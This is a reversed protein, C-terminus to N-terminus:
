RASSSSSGTGHGATRRRNHPPTRATDSIAARSSVAAAATIGGDESPIAEHGVIQAYEHIRLGHDVDVLVVHGLDQVVPVDAKEVEKRLAIGAPRM